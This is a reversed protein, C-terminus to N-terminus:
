RGVHVSIFFGWSGSRDGEDIGIYRRKIFPPNPMTAVLHDFVERSVGGTLWDERLHTISPIVDSGRPIRYDNPRVRMIVASDARSLAAEEVKRPIGEIIERAEHSVRPSKEVIPVQLSRGYHMYHM